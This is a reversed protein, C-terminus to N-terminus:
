YAVSQGFVRGNVRVLPIRTGKTWGTFDLASTLSVGAGITKQQYVPAGMTGLVSLAITLPNAGANNRLVVWYAGPPLYLPASTLPITRLSAVTPTFASLIGNSGPVYDLSASNGLREEYFSAEVAGRITATDTNWFSVSDLMMSADLVVPIALCDGVGISYTTNNTLTAGGGIPYAFPMYGADSMSRERVGDHYRHLKRTSSYGEEGQSSLSGLGIAHALENWLRSM